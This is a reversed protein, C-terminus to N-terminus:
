QYKKKLWIITYMSLLLPIFLHLSSKSTSSPQVVFGFYEGDNNEVTEYHYPSNDVAIIYYEVVDGVSFPGLSTEYITGSVLTMTLETWTGLNTRYVLTVSYIGSADSVSCNVQISLGDIPEAVSQLVSSISPPTVDSSVVDFNYYESDNNEDTPNLNPSNDIARIFYEIHVNYDFPGIDAEYISDAILTMVCNSWSTGNIRYYLTVSQIGNEDTVNCNIIVHQIDTPITPTHEVNKITPGTVDGSLVTFIYPFGINDKTAINHNPSDDVAFFFYEIVDNYDFPGLEIEYIDGSVNIMTINDWGGSNVQYHLEVKQIDNNDTVTCNFLVALTDVPNVPIIQVNDIIPTTFDG